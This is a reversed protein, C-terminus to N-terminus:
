GIERMDLHIKFNANYNTWKGLLFPKIISFSNDAAVFRAIYNPDLDVNSKRMNDNVNFPVINSYLKNNFVEADM